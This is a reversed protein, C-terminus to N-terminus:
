EGKLYKMLDEATYKGDKLGRKLDSVKANEGYLQLWRRGRSENAQKEYKAFRDKNSEIFNANDEYEKALNENGNKKHYEALDRNWKIREDTNKYVKNDYDFSNLFADNEFHAGGNKKRNTWHPRWGNFRKEIENEFNREENEEDNADVIEKLADQGAIDELAGEDPYIEDKWRIQGNPYRIYKRESVPQKMAGVLKREPTDKGFQNDLVDDDANNIANMFEEDDNNDALNYNDLLEKAKDLPVSLEIKGKNWPEQLLFAHIGLKELAKINEKNNPSGGLDILLKNHESNTSVKEIPGADDLLDDFLYKNKKDQFSAMLEEHNLNNSDEKFEEEYDDDFAESMAANQEQASKMEKNYKQDEVEQASPAGSQHQCKQGDQEDNSIVHGHDDRKMNKFGM